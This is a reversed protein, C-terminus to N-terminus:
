RVSGTTGGDTYYQAVPPQHWASAFSSPGAPVDIQSWDLRLERASDSKAKRAAEARADAAAILSDRVADKAKRAAEIEELVAYKTKPRYILDQASAATALLLGAAFLFISCRAVPAGKPSM